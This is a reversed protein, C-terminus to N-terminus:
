FINELSFSYKDTMHNLVFITKELEAIAANKEGQEVFSKCVTYNTEVKEIENHELYYSLKSHSENIYDKIKQAQIKADDFEDLLLNEKLSNLESTLKEVTQKTYSQTIFDGCFIGIIIIFAIIAEKFM